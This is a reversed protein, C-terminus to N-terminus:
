PNETGVLAALRERTHVTEFPPRSPIGHQSLLALVQRQVEADAFARDLDALLPDGRRTAAHLNWRLVDPPEFDASREVQGALLALDPGWVLGATAAGDALAGLVDASAEQMTWRLGAANVAVHAVSNAVVAVRGADPEAGLVAAGKGWRLPSHQPLLEYAAGYYPESLTLRGRLHAIAGEGPVSLQVDCEGRLLPRFDLDTSEIDTQASQPMWVLRLPRNLTAALLRAVDVDFSPGDGSRLSRPPDNEAFCVAFPSVDEAEVTAAFALCAAVAFAAAAHFRAM